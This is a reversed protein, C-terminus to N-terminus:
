PFLRHASNKALWVGQSGSISEDVRPYMFYKTKDVQLESHDERQKWWSLVTHQGKGAAVQCKFFASLGERVTDLGRIVPPRILTQGPLAFISFSWFIKGKYKKYLPLMYMFCIILSQCWIWQLCEGIIVLIIRVHCLKFFTLSPCTTSNFYSITDKAATTSTNTNSSKKM